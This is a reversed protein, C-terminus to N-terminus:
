RRSLFVSFARRRRTRPFVPSRDTTNDGSPASNKAIAEFPSLIQGAGPLYILAAGFGAFGRVVAATFATAMLVILDSAPIPLEM